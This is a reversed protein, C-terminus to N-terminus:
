DETIKEFKSRALTTPTTRDITEVFVLADFAGMPSLRSVGGQGRMVQETRAWQAASSDAMIDRLDILFLKHGSRQLAADLSTPDSERLGWPGVGQYFSFGIPLYDVRPDDAIHVGMPTIRASPRGPIELDMQSEAVHFNHSWLIFRGTGETNEVLWRVNSAMARERVHGAEIFDTRAVSFMEHAQKVSVMQQLVFGYEEISSSSVLFDENEVLGQHLSEINASIEELMDNSLDQYRKMITSWIPARFIDLKTLSLDKM